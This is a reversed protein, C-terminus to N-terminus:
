QIKGKGESANQSKKPRKALNQALQAGTALVNTAASTFSPDHKAYRATTRPEHHGALQGALALSVGGRILWTIATHRLTYPTVGSLNARDCATKFAKKISAVREGNARAIVYDGGARDRLAVLLVHLENNIAVSPRHKHTQARGPPNYHILRADLDVQDWQLDLISSPRAGTNIALMLYATLYDRESAALLAAVEDKKLWRERPPAAKPREIFPADKIYGDRKALGFAASFTDLERRVTGASVNRESKKKGRCAKQKMRAVAYERMVPNCVHDGTMHQFYPILHRMHYQM